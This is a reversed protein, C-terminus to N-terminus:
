ILEIDGNFVFKAPGYLKINEYKNNEKQFDVKLKGGKAFLEISDTTKKGTFNIIVAAAVVGTGCALTEDEVGREFTAIKVIDNKFEVFNVNTRDPVFRKDDALAKGSLTVNINDINDVFVVFHPSGTNLFFGDDYIKIGEVNNMSIVVEDNIVKAYHPGDSAIFNLNTGTINNNYAFMVACRGGNGCMSAEKGDSNYYRMRFDYGDVKEIIILGDAGIGFRRSCMYKVQDESLRVVNNYGNIIIFDNGAGHYKEFHLIM